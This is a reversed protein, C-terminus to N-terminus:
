WSCRDSSRAWLYWVGLVAIVLLADQELTFHYMLRFVFGYVVAHILSSVAM